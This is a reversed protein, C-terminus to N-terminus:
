SWWFVHSECTTLMRGRRRTSRAWVLHSDSRGVVLSAKKLFIVRLRLPDPSLMIITRVCLPCGSSAKSGWEDPPPGRQEGTQRSPLTSSKGCCCFPVGAAGAARPPFPVAGAGARAMPRSARNHTQTRSPVRSGLHTRPAARFSAHRHRTHVSRMCARPLGSCSTLALPVLPDNFFAGPLHNHNNAHYGCCATQFKTREKRYQM